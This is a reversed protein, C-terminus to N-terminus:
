DTDAVTEGARQRDGAVPLVQGRIEGDPFNTSHINIYFLGRRLDARQRNNLPGVCGTKPSDFPSPAPSIAFAVSANEGVSAPSHFHANTEAGGELASYSIAYCLMDTSNTFTMLANGFANSDPKLDQIEQQSNLVAFFVDDATAREPWAVVGLSFLAAAALTGYRCENKM